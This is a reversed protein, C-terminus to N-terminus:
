GGMMNMNKIEQYLLNILPQEDESPRDAYLMEHDFTSPHFNQM